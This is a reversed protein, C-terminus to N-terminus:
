IVIGRDLPICFMSEAVWPQGPALDEQLIPHLFRGPVQSLTLLKMCILRDCSSWLSIYM